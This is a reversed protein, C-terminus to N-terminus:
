RRRRGFRTVDVEGTIQARTGGRGGAATESFARVEGPQVRRLTAFAMPSEGRDSGDLWKVFLTVDTQVTCTTKVQGSITRSPATASGQLAFAIVSVPPEDCDPEATPAATPLPTWTARPRAGLQIPLERM